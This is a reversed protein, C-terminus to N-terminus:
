NSGTAANEHEDIDESQCLPGIATFQTGGLTETMSDLLDIVRQNKEIVKLGIAQAESEYIPFGHEPFDWVLSRAINRSEESSKYSSLLRRAYDEGITLSRSRESWRVADIDDLLPVMMDAVFKLVMPLLVDIRKGSTQLLSIMFQHTAQLAFANLRELSQVEDLASNREERDLDLIQADLPGLEADEGLVIAMSGLALLTAASKAYSPVVVLFGGCRRRFFEAIQFAATASGGPSDLILLIPKEPSVLKKELIINNALVESISAYPGSSRRQVLLFAPRDFIEELSRVDQVFQEPLVHHSCYVGATVAVQEPSKDSLEDEPPSEATTSADDAEAGAGNEGGPPPQDDDEFSMTDDSDTAVYM